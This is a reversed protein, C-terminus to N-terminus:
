IPQHVLALSDSVFTGVACFDWIFICGSLGVGDRGLLDLIHDQDLIPSERRHVMYVQENPIRSGRDANVYVGGVGGRVDHRHAPRYSRCSRLPQCQHRYACPDCDRASLQM